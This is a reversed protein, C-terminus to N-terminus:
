PKSRHRASGSATSESSRPSASDFRQHQSKLGAGYVAIQTRRQMGLKALLASVYNKVTKEALFLRAGIERNTLGDAILALVQRDRDTLTALRDDAAGSRLRTLVRETISPDLLSRGAAVERVADTIASTRIEKLLYGRAGATVAAFIAEDDDHSTLILCRVDPLASNIERCVSIGSGDPLQVDIIAVDPRCSNIQELAEAATGAQGVVEFGDTSEFLAVLGARVIEHDDVIFVGVPTLSQTTVPPTRDM